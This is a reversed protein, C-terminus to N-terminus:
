GQGWEAIPVCVPDGNLWTWWCGSEDALKCLNSLARVDIESDGYDIADAQVLGEFRQKIKWLNEGNNTIWGASFCDESIESMLDFLAIAQGPHKSKQSEQEVAERISFVSM